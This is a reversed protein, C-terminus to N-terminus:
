KTMEFVLLASLTYQVSLNDFIHKAMKDSIHRCVNIIEVVSLSVRNMESLIYLM